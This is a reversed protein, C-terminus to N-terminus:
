RQELAEPPRGEAYVSTGGGFTPLQSALTASTVGPTEQLAALLRQQEVRRANRRELQTASPSAVSQPLTLAFTVLGDPAYGLPVRRLNRLHVVLIASMTLLTFALAIEAVVFAQSLRRASAGASARVGETLVANPATRNAQWLPALGALVGTAVAVA